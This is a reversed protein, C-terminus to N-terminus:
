KGGAVHEATRWALAQITLTPNIGTATPFTAGGLVYLDVVDHVRGFEDVVSTVPDRGMRAGGVDHASLVNFGLDGRWSAAAGMERTLELMREALFARMRRENDRMSYRVALRPLGLPGDEKSSWDVELANGRYPLAEPMARLGGIASWHRLLFKKYERGWRPIWPPLTKAARIPTLENEVAVTGGRVFGLGRHDFNDGNLDDVCMAQGAPGDVLQLDEGPFFGSVEIAQRCIFNRGLQGYRNGLGDPHRGDRSLFLLRINEFTYAGLMVTRAEIMSEHGEADVYRVGVARDGDVLVRTVRKNSHIVLRGTAFAKPIATVLTSSKSGYRCAQGLCWGCYSCGPRGDFDDSLIAVPPPYPHYGLSKAADAFREGFAFPRMPPLPYQGARVGEFPNGADAPGLGAVHHAVGSVGILNETKTYYPELEDYGVPWDAITCDESVARAGYADITNSRARFDDAQFRRSWGAFHLSSGGVANVMQGIPSATARQTSGDPHVWNPTERRFKQGRINDYFSGNIEDARFDENRLWEGAEVAHVTLGASTLVHAAIGGAAGLGVLVVDAEERM